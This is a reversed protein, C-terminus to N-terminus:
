TDKDNDDHETTDSENRGRPSYGVLNKQGHVTGQGHCSFQLPSDPGGEPSRGSGPNSVVDRADGANEPLNKVM